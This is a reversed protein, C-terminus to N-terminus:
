KPNQQKQEEEELVVPSEEVVVVVFNCHTYVLQLIDVEVLLVEEEVAAV